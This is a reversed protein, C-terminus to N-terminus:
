AARYAPFWSRRTQEAETRSEAEAKDDEVASEILALGNGIMQQIEALADETNPGYGSHQAIRAHHAAAELAQRMRDLHEGSLTLCDSVVISQRM